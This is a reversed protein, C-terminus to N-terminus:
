YYLTDHNNYHKLFFNYTENQNYNIGAEREGTKHIINTSSQSKNLASKQVSHSTLYQSQM